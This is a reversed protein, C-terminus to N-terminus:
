EFKEPYTKELEEVAKLCAELEDKDFRCEGEELGEFNQKIKIFPGGGEDEISIHTSTEGFIPNDSKRYVSVCIPTIRISNEM